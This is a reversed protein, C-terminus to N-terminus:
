FKYCTKLQLFHGKTTNEAHVDYLYTLTVSIKPFRNYLEIGASLTERATKGIKKGSIKKDESLMWNVSPGLKFTKTLNYGLLYQLHIEDGPSTQTSENEMRFYYKAAADMSFNNITKHFFIVPRIDYQNAGFNVSKNSDYEGTPFKAFLMPLIDIEKVPIFYGAGAIIDGLGYSDKKLSKVETYGAPLLVTLVLDPSYYCFRLLEEAKIFDYDKKATKGEHDTTKDASYFGSYTLFYLGKSARVGDYFNVALGINPIMTFSLVTLLLFKLKPM